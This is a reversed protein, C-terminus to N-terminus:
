GFGSIGGGGECAGGIDCFQMTGPSAWSVASIFVSEVSLRYIEKTM